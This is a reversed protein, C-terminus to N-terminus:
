AEAVRQVKDWQGFPVILGEVFFQVLYPQGAITVPIEDSLAALLGLRLATSALATAPNIAVAWTQAMPRIAPLRWSDPRTPALDESVRQVLHWQGVPVSVADVFFQVIYQSGGINVPTEDSIPGFLGLQSAKTMLATNPNGAVSWQQALPAIAARIQARTPAPVPAGGTARYRAIWAEIQPIIWEKTVATGPCTKPGRDRHFLLTRPDLNLRVHLIGLAAVTNALTAGSPLQNDYDGVMEVHRSGANYGRVGIGDRDLDTFLWIGDDAIFLHPGANWGIHQEGAADTWVQQEYYNKMGLITQYGKWEEQRPRWTHHLFIMTPPPTGFDKTMVYQVFQDAQMVRGDIQMPPEKIAMSDEEFYDTGSVKRLNRVKALNM